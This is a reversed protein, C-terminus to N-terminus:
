NLAMLGADGTHAATTRQSKKTQRSEGTLRALVYGQSDLAVLGARMEAITALIEAETPLQVGRGAAKLQANALVQVVDRGVPMRKGNQKIPNGKFDQVAVNLSEVLTTALTHYDYEPAEGAIRNLHACFINALVEVTPYDVFFIETYRAYFEPPLTDLEDLNATDVIFIPLGEDFIQQRFSLEGALYRLGHGGDSQSGQSTLQKEVEDTAYAIPACARALRHKNRQRRDTEGIHAHFNDGARDWLIPVGLEHSIWRILASKGTGPVGAILIAVRPRVGTEPKELVAKIERIRAKIVDMGVIPPAAEVTPELEIHPAIAKVAAVKADSAHQFAVQPHNLRVAVERSVTELQRWNLGALNTVLQQPIAAPDVYEPHNTGAAAAIVQRIAPEGPYPFELRPIFNVLNPPLDGTMGTLVVRVPGPNHNLEELVDEFFLATAPSSQLVAKPHVILYLDSGSTLTDTNLLQDYILQLTNELRRTDLEPSTFGAHGNPCTVQVHGDKWATHLKTGCQACVGTAYPNETVPQEWQMSVHETAQSWILQRLGRHMKWMWIRAPPPQIDKPFFDARRYRELFQMYQTCLLPLMHEVEDCDIHLAPARSVLRSYFETSFKELQTAPM